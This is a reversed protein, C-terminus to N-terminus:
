AKRDKFVRLSSAQIGEGEYAKKLAESALPSYITGKMSQNRDIAVDVVAPKQQTLAARVAEAVQGPRDVREGFCGL